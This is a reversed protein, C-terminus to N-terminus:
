SLNQSALYERHDALSLEYAKHLAEPEDMGDAMFQQTEARIKAKAEPIGEPVGVKHYISELEADMESVDFPDPAPEEEVPEEVAVPEEVTEEIPEEIVVPEEAPEEVAPEEPVPAAGGDGNAAALRQARRARRAERLEERSRGGNSKVPKPPEVAGLEETGVPSDGEIASEVDLIPPAPAAGQQAEKRERMYQFVRFLILALLVLGIIQVLSTM